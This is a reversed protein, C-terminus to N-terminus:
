SERFAGPKAELPAKSSAVPGRAGPHHMLRVQAMGHLYASAAVASAVAVAAQARRGSGESPGMSTLSKASAQSSNPEQHELLKGNSNAHRLNAFGFYPNALHPALLTLKPM